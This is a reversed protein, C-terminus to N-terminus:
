VRGTMRVIWTDSLLSDTAWAAILVFIWWVDTGSIQNKCAPVIYMHTTELNKSESPKTVQPPLSQKPCKKKDTKTLGWFRTATLRLLLFRGLAFFCGDACECCVEM